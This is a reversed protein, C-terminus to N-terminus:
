LVIAIMCSIMTLNTTETNLFAAKIRPFLLELGWTSSSTITTRVVVLLPHLSLSSVPQWPIRAIWPWSRRHLVQDPQEESSRRWWHHFQPSMMLKFAHRRRGVEARMWIWWGGGMSNVSSRLMRRPWGSMWVAWCSASLREYWIYRLFGLCFAKAVQEDVHFCQHKPNLLNVFLINSLIKLNGM